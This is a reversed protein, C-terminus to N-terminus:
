KKADNLAWDYDAFAVKANEPVNKVYKRIFALPGGSKTFDEGFWKMIPTTTVTDGSVKAGYPGNLFARAQEDLQTNIKSGTYAEDRLPPCTKAACNIAFHIRPDNFAQRIETVEVHNLSTKGTGYPVVEQDFVNLRKIPDTSLDRISKVPYHEAVLTVVNINYVNIWYALRDDKSLATADVQGLRTRLAQLKPLESAKLAAYDMGNAPSYHKKLIATFESYDPATKVANPAAAPLPADATKTGPCAFATILLSSLLVGAINRM